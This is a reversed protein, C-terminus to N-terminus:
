KWNAFAETVDVQEFPADYGEPADYLHNEQLEFTAGFLENLMLPFSNILTYSLPFDVSFIDPFYYAAYVDFHILRDDSTWVDGYTTAHDAQFIIIPPHQSRRLITDIMQLYKSNVFEFEAFYEKHSPSYIRGISNGNEDFTTPGHPKMLHVITFTAEPMDAILELEDITDLFREQEFLGYPTAGDRQLHALVESQLIRLATTQLYLPLFSQKYFHGLKASRWHVSDDGLQIEVSNDVQDIILDLSGRPSFDRNIDAIPSPLLYGSLFQVYTYGIQIMQRAVKSDAISLRLFDLDRNQSTNENFYDMNLVSAMSLLTAGYNSQAHDIVQFGRAELANTFGSNDYNMAELLWSDSPYGDPIIFYIDPHTTSDNVKQSATRTNDVSGESLMDSDLAPMAIESAVITYTPWILMALAILNFTSSLAQYLQKPMARHLMNIALTAFLSALVTWGFLTIPILDLDYLHGSLSFFLSCISLLLASKYRNRLLFNIIFFAITTAALIWALAALVEHEIVLSLNESYLHLIPFVGILWLYFPFDLIRSKDKLM